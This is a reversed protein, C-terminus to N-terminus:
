FWQRLAKYAREAVDQVDELRWGTGAHTGVIELTACPVKPLSKMVEALAPEDLAGQGPIQQEVPGIPTERSARNDRARLMVVYQKVAKLTAVPDEAREGSRWIHGPDYNFGVTELDLTKVAELMADRSCISTAVHPKIALRLGFTAARAGARNLIEVVTRLSDQFEPTFSDDKVAPAEGGAGEAIFPAGVLQAAELTKAFDDTTMSIGGTGGISEVKLGRSEIQDRVEAYYAAPEGIKLHEAMGPRACLEIYRYGARAIGDLAEDLSYGGYLITSCGLEM